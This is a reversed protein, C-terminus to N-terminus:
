PRRHDRARSMLDPQSLMYAVRGIFEKRRFPKRLVEVGLPVQALGAAEVYGTIVLAPVNPRLKRARRLFDAGSMGPMAYDTVIADVRSGAELHGLAEAGSEARTVQWGEAELFGGVSVLIDSADDVVLVRQVAPDTAAPVQALGQELADAVASSKVLDLLMGRSRAPIRAFAKLLELTERPTPSDNAAPQPTSGVTQKM